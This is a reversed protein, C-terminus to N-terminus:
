IVFSIVGAMAATPAILFKNHFISSTLDFSRCSFGNIPFFASLIQTLYVVPSLNSLRCHSCITLRNASFVFDIGDFFFDDQGRRVSFGSFPVYEDTTGAIQVLRGVLKADVKVLKGTMYPNKSAGTAALGRKGFINESFEDAIFDRKNNKVPLFIVPVQDAFM